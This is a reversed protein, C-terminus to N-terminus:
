SNMVNDNFPYTIFVRDMFNNQDSTTNGYNWDQHNGMPSTPQTQQSSITVETM